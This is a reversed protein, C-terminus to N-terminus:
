DGEGDIIELERADAEKLDANQLLGLEAETIEEQPNKRHAELMLTRLEKRAIGHNQDLKLAKQYSVAANKIDGQESLRRAEEVYQDAPASFVPTALICFLIAITWKKWIGQLKM